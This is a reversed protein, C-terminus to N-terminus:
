AGATPRAQRGSGSGLASRGPRSDERRGGRRERSPATKGARSLVRGGTMPAPERPGGQSPADQIRRQGNLASCPPQGPLRSQRGQQRWGRSRTRRWHRSGAEPQLVAEALPKRAPLGGRPQRGRRPPASPPRGFAATAARRLAEHRDESRKGRTRKGEQRQGGLCSLIAEKGSVQLLRGSGPFTGPPEPLSSPESGASGSPM